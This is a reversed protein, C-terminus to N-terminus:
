LRCLLTLMALANELKPLMALFDEEVEATPTARMVREQFVHDTSYAEGKDAGITTGDLYTRLTQCSDFQIVFTAQGVHGMVNDHSKGDYLILSQDLIGERTTKATRNLEGYHGDTDSGNGNIAFNPSKNETSHQLICSNCDRLKISGGM